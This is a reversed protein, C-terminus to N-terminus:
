EKSKPHESDEDDEELIEKIAQEPEVDLEALEDPDNDKEAM